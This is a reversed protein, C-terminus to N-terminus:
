TNFVKNVEEVVINLTINQNFASKRLASVIKVNLEHKIKSALEACENYADGSGDRYAIKIDDSVNVHEPKGFICMGKLKIIENLSESM